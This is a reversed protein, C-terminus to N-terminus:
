FDKIAPRLTNRSVRDAAEGVAATNVTAAPATMVVGAIATTALTRRHLSRFTPRPTVPARHRGKQAGHHM